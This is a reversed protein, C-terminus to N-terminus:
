VPSWRYACAARREPVHNRPSLSALTVTKSGAVPPPKSPRSGSPPFRLSPASDVRANTPVISRNCSSGDALAPRM